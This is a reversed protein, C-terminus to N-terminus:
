RAQGRRSPPKIGALAFDDVRHEWVWDLGEAAEYKLYGKNFYGCLFLILQVEEGFTSRLQRIKTAEEKRRKNPNAFDGASKAEVLLPLGHTLPEHPQIVADIPMNVRGAGDESRVVVNQRFSFTGAPMSKLSLSSPHPRKVYGREILWKELVALQRTEQENRVIPDALAGCRRDGVVVAAIERRRPEPARGTRLWNFLNKDLLDNIVVCINALHDDLDGKMRSPLKGEELSKVLGKPLDALGTLRDRAIPPATTMRLVAVIEPRQRIVDPTIDRMDATDVFLKEVEDVVSDRTKAYAEPAAKLFWENYLEVSASSDDAWKDPKDANIVGSAEEAKTLQM